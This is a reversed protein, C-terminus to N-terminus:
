TARGSLPSILQNLAKAVWAPLEAASLGIMGSGEAEFLEGARGHVYAGLCAAQAPALGQALLGGIVGALV